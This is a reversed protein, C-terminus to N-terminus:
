TGEERRGVADCRGEVFGDDEDEGEDGPAPRRM